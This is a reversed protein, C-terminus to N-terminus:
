VKSEEGFSGPTMEIGKRRSRMDDKTKGEERVSRLHKEKKVCAIYAQLLRRNNHYPSQKIFAAICPRSMEKINRSNEGFSLRKEQRIQHKM